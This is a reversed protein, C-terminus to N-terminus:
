IVGFGLSSTIQQLLFLFWVRLFQAKPQSKNILAKKESCHLQPATVSISIFRGVDPRCLASMSAESSGPSTWTGTSPSLSLCLTFVLGLSYKCSYSLPLLDLPALSHYRRIPIPDSQSKTVIHSAQRCMQSRVEMWTVHIRINRLERLLTYLHTLLDICLFNLFTM